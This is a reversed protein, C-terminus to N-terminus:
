PRVEPVFPPKVCFKLLLEVIRLRASAVEQLKALEARLQDLAALAADNDECDGCICDAGHKKRYAIYARVTGVHNM